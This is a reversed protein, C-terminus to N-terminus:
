LLKNDINAIFSLNQEYNMNNKSLSTASSVSNSSSSSSSQEATSSLSTLFTNNLTETTKNKLINEAFNISLNPFWKTKEFLSNRQIAPTTSGEYSFNAFQLFEIWFLESNQVTWSHFSKYDSFRIKYKESIMESFLFLQSSNAQKPTWLIPNM